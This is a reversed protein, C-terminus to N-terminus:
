KPLQTLPRCDIFSRPFSVSKFKLLSDFSTAGPGELKAWRAIEWELETKFPHYPNTAHGHKQSWREYVGEESRLVKAATPYHDVDSAPAASRARPSDPPPPPNANTDTTSTPQDLQEADFAAAFEDLMANLEDQFLGEDDPLLPDPDTSDFDDLPVHAPAPLELGDRCYKSQTQHSLLHGPLKFTKFCRLCRNPHM